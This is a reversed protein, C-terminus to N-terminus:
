LDKVCRVSYGYSKYSTSRYVVASYYYLCRIWADSGDYETASWFYADIGMDLFSGNNHRYGGALATFGSSNTAGINESNWHATGTEKMKGGAVNVGGLYDTLTVWEDDTPLHWGAPAVTLATEWNYLRGYTTCNSSDNDYCWSGSDADYNLNEKMWCQNGIQITKYTNGEYDTVTPTGPCPLGDTIEFLYNESIIPTDEIIDSGALGVGPTAYAIYLLQDGTTYAFNSKISKLKLNKNASGYYVIKCDVENKIYTNLMKISQVDRNTKVSLLYYKEDGSYFIFSHNGSYLTNEYHAVERGLVDFISIMIFENKPIFVNVSTQGEFPNPYNQSVSLNNKGTGNQSSIGTFLLTLVTDPYYLMTDGGQTLNEVFISDLAIHSGNYEASFTLEIQSQGNMNSLLLFAFVTITLFRKNM